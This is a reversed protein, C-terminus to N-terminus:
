EKKWMGEKTIVGRKALSELYAFVYSNKQTVHNDM